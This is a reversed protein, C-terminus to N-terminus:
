CRLLSRSLGAEHIIRKVIADSVPPIDVSDRELASSKVVFKFAKILVDDTIGILIRAIGNAFKVSLAHQGNRKRLVVGVILNHGDVFTKLLSSAADHETRPNCLTVSVLNGKSPMMKLISGFTRTDWEPLSLNLELEQLSRSFKVTQTNSLPTSIELRKLNPLVAKVFHATHADRHDNGTLPDYLDVESIMHMSHVVPSRLGAGLIDAALAGLTRLNPMLADCPIITSSHRPLVLTVLPLAMKVSDVARVLWLPHIAVPFSSVETVEIKVLQRAMPHLHNLLVLDDASDVPIYTYLKVADPSATLQPTTRNFDIERVVCSRWPKPVKEKLSAADVYPAVLGPRGLPPSVVHLPSSAGRAAAATAPSSVSILALTPTTPRHSTFANRVRTQPSPRLRTYM